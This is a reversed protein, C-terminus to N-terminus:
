VCMFPLLFLVLIDFIYLSMRWLVSQEARRSALEPGLASSTGVLLCLPRYHPGKKESSTKVHATM